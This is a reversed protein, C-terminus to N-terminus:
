AARAEPSADARYFDEFAEVREAEAATRRGRRILDRYEGVTMGTLRERGADTLASETHRGLIEAVTVLPLRMLAAAAEPDFDCGSEREFIDLVEGFPMREKYQRRSCLADFTDAVHMIRAERPIAEGELGRAYGRGDMREHHMAAFDPIRRLPKAFHIRDLIEQTYDVHRRMEAFEDETLRGPKTLISEPV